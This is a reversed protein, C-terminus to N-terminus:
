QNAPVLKWLHHDKNEKSKLKKLATTEIGWRRFVTLLQIVSEESVPENLSLHLDRSKGVLEVHEPLSHVWNFFVSEDEQCYFTPGKFVIDM